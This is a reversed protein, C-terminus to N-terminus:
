TKPDTGARQEVVLVPDGRGIRDGCACAESQVAVSEVRRIGVCGGASRRHVSGRQEIQVGRPRGEGNRPSPAIGERVIPVPRKWKFDSRRKHTRRGHIYIQGSPRAVVLPLGFAHTDGVGVVGNCDLNLVIQM